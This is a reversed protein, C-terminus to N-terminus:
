IFGNVANQAVRARFKLIGPGRGFAHDHRETFFLGIDYNGGHSVAQAAFGMKPGTHGADALVTCGEILLGHDPVETQMARQNIQVMAGFQLGLELDGDVIGTIAILAVTRKASINYSDLRSGFFVLNATPNNKGFLHRLSM